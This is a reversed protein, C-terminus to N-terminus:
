LNVKLKYHNDKLEGISSDYESIISDLRKHLDDNIKTLHAEEDSNKKEKEELEKKLYNLRENLKKQSAEFKNLTERKKNAENQAIQKLKEAEQTKLTAIEKKCLNIENNKKENEVIREERLKSLESKKDNLMKQNEEIKSRLNIILRKHSEEEDFGTNLKKLFLFKLSVVIQRFVEFIDNQSLKPQELEKPLNLEINFLERILSRTTKKIKESLISLEIKKEDILNMIERHESNEFEEENNETEEEDLFTKSLEIQEIIVQKLALFDESDKVLSIVLENCNLNLQESGKLNILNDNGLRSVMKTKKEFLELLKLIRQGMIITPRLHRYTKSISETLEFQKKAREPCYGVNKIQNDMASQENQNM